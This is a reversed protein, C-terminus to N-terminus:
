SCRRGKGLLMSAARVPDPARMLYEGVLVADVGMEEISRVSEPDQFGSESVVVRDEPILPFIRETTSIDVSLTRLDRNNIGVVEAGAELAKELDGEDHVEVLSDMGLERALEVLRALRAADLAAAILLVADAGIERSELIQYEDIIFDKRLIPLRSSGRAEALDDLSGGFFFPETLVSLAHAGGREYCRALRSVSVEDRIIGKSPSRRKVEAVLKIGEGKRRRLSDRFRHPEELPSVTLSTLPRLAKSERVRTRAKDLAKELFM